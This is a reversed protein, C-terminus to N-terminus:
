KIKECKLQYSYYKDKDFRYKMVYRDCNKCIDCDAGICYTFDTKAKEKMRGGYEMGLLGYLWMCAM